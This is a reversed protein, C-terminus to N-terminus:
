LMCLEHDHGFFICPFSLFLIYACVIIYKTINLVDNYTYVIPRILAM